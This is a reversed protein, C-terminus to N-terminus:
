SICQKSEMPVEVDKQLVATGLFLCERIVLVDARTKAHEALIYAINFLFIIPVIIALDAGFM